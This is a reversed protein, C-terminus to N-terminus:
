YENTGTILQIVCEPMKIAEEKHDEIQLVSMYIIDSNDIKKKVHQVILNRTAMPRNLLLDCFVDFHPLFM